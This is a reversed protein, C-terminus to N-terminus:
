AIRVANLLTGGQPNELGGTNGEGIVVLQGGAAQGLLNFQSEVSLNVVCSRHAIRHQLSSAYIGHAGEPIAGGGTVNRLYIRWLPNNTGNQYSTCQFSLFWIGASLTLSSILNEQAGVPFVISNGLYTERYEGVFGEPIELGDTKGKYSAGDTNAANTIEDVRIIDM